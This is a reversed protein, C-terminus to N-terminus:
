HSNDPKVRDQKRWALYDEVTEQFARDPEEVSSGYFDLVHQVGVVLGHFMGATCESEIRARYGRYERM